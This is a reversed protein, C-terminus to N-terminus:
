NKEYYRDKASEAIVNWRKFVSGNQVSSNTPVRGGLTGSATPTVGNSDYSTNPEPSTVINVHFGNNTMYGPAPVDPSKQMDNMISKANTTSMVLKEFESPTKASSSSSNIQTGDTSTFSVELGESSAYRILLTTALDACDFKEKNAQINQIESDVFNSFGEYDQGSWQRAVAWASYEEKKKDRTNKPEQQEYKEYGANLLMENKAQLIESSYKTAFDYAQSEMGTPDILVIPNNGVYNYVSLNPTKVGLPDVSWWRGLAADYWRAGYDSLNLGL